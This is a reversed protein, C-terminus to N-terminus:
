MWGDHLKEGEREGERTEMNASDHSCVPVCEGVNGGVVGAEEGERAGHDCGSQETSPGVVEPGAQLGSIVATDVLIDKVTPTTAPPEAGSPAAGVGAQRPSASKINTITVRRREAVHFLTISAPRARDRQRTCVCRHGIIKSQLALSKVPSYESDFEIPRSPVKPRQSKLINNNHTWEKWVGDRRCLIFHKDLENHSRESVPVGWVAEPM